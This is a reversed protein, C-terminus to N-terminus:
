PGKAYVRVYDVLMSQPFVTAADPPGPWDGGVALNLIIFFPHDFVWKQGSPWQDSTFTAYLSSDVYFRVAAPEWEVAYLHFDDAFRKGPPLSFPATLDSTGTPSRPGHLSGHVISPEKGINEMIDIEGCKPWGIKSIDDGLMWFAPWMGEGAPIKIRAEFRGYTQAFLTQTKLRASTYERTVGDAGTFKEKRATILLSGNRIEANAPRDTYYELEHNGWGNGGIDYTWKAKDPLSSDPGNFEDSWVLRWGSSAPVSFRFKGGGSSSITVFALALGGSVFLLRGRSMM